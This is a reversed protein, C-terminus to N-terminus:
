SANEWLEKIFLFNLFITLLYFIFEIILIYCFLTKVTVKSAFHM